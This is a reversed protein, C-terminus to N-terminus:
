STTQTSAQRPAQPRAALFRARLVRTIVGPVMFGTALFAVSTPVLFLAWQASPGTIIGNRAAHAALAGIVGVIAGLVVLSIVVRQVIRSERSLYELECTFCRTQENTEHNSCLPAACRECRLEAPSRCEGCLESFETKRYAM